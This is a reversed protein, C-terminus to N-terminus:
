EPSIKGVAPSMDVNILSRLPANLEANLAYAMVVKGGRPDWDAIHDRQRMGGM